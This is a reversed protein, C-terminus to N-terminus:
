SNGIATMRANRSFRARRTLTKWRVAARRSIENLVNQMKKLFSQDLAFSRMNSVHGHREMVEQWSYPYYLDRECPNANCAHWRTQVEKLAWDVAAPLHPQALRWTAVEATFSNWEVMLRDLYKPDFVKVAAESCKACGLIDQPHPATRTLWTGTSHHGPHQLLVVVEGPDESVVTFLADVTEEVVSMDDNWIGSLVCAHLLFAIKFEPM